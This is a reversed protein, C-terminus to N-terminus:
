GPLLLSERSLRASRCSANNSRSSHLRRSSWTRYITGGSRPSAEALPPHASLRRQLRQPGRSADGRRREAYLWTRNGLRPLRGAPSAPADNRWAGQRLSGAGRPSRAGPTGRGARKAVKAALRPKRRTFFDFRGHCSTLAFPRAAHIRKIASLATGGMRLRFPLGDRQKPRM